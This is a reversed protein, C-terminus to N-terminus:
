TPNMTQMQQTIAIKTDVTQCMKSNQPVEVVVSTGKIAMNTMLAVGRTHIKPIPLISFWVKLLIQCMKPIAPPCIKAIKSCQLMAALPSTSSNNTRFKAKLLIQFVWIKTSTWMSSKSNTRIRRINSMTNKQDLWIWIETKTVEV